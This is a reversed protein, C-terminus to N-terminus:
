SSADVASKDDDVRPETHAALWEEVHERRYRIVGAGLQISRPLSAGRYRRQHITHPSLGLLDALEATTLLDSM